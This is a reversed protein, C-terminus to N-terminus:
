FTFDVFIEKNGKMLCYKNSDNWNRCFYAKNERSYDERIWVQAPTPESIAKKTFYDGQKLEKITM